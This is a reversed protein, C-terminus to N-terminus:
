QHSALRNTALLQDLREKDYGRLFPLPLHGALSGQLQQMTSISLRAAERAFRAEAEPLHCDDHTDRFIAVQLTAAWLSLFDHGMRWETGEILGEASELNRGIAIAYETMTKQASAIAFRAEKDDIFTLASEWLWLVCGYNKALKLRGDAVVAASSTESIERHNWRHQLPTTMLRYLPGVHLKVLGRLGWLAQPSLKHIFKM